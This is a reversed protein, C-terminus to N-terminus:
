DGKFASLIEKLEGRVMYKAFIIIQILAMLLILLLGFNSRLLLMILMELLLTGSLMIMPKRYIQMFSFGLFKKVNIKEQNAIRFVSALSLLIGLLIVILIVFVLGFWLITTKLDKQIGDIYNQVKAFVLENDSLNFKSLIEKSTYMNKIEENQFKIYGNIGIAKLSESEFYSMNEPTCIYIVPSSVETQENDETAWTFIKEKPTYTVFEIEQKENFTTEIDGASIESVKAEKLWGNLKKQEEESMTDPILYIRTGNKAASIVDESVDFGLNEIYNPSFAAYWFPKKPIESYVANKKWLELSSNDYYKTNILYVGDEDAISKYWDYVNQDLQKSQGSFSDADEGVSIKNLIQYESVNLWRESLKANESLLQIPEDVYSGCYMMAVSIGLYAIIGMVYLTRKPIRGHIADLPKIFLMVLASIVLELVVLIFNILASMVFYSLLTISYGDWGALIIGIIILVPINIVAYVLFSGLVEFCFSTRSWGLLVLKGEKSLNKLTIVLFFIVNFFCQALIFGVIIIIHFSDDVTQGSKKTELDDKSIDSVKSLSDIFAENESNNQLGIISYTGNITQSDSILQQLKKVVIKEGLRFSPLGGVSNISGKDVGLTSAQNDSSLLTTLNGESLVQQGLFSLSIDNNEVDGYVGLIYGAFEGNNSLDIDRRVIFLQQEESKEYLYQEIADEKEQSVNKLYVTLGQGNEPYNSWQEQYRSNMFFITLLALLIGQMVIAIIGLYRIRGVFSTKEM